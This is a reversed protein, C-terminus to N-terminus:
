ATDSFTVPKASPNRIIEEEEADIRREDKILKLHDGFQENIRKIDDLTLKKADESTEEATKPNCLKAPQEDTDIDVSLHQWKVPAQRPKDPKVIRPKPPKYPKEERAVTLKPPEQPKTTASQSANSTPEATQESSAAEKATESVSPKSTEDPKSTESEKSNEVNSTEDKSSEEESEEAEIEKRKQAVIDNIHQRYEADPEKPGTDSLSKRNTPEDDPTETSVAAAGSPSSTPPNEKNGNEKGDEDKGTEEKVPKAAPPANQRDNPKADKDIFIPQFQGVEDSIDVDEDEVKPLLDTPDKKIFLDYCIMGAYVFVYGIIVVIFITSFAM